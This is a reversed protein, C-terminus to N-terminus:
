VLSPEFTLNCQIVSNLGTILMGWGGNAWERYLNFHQQNPPGGGMAALSEYM